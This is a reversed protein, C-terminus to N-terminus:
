FRRKNKPSLNKVLFNGNDDKAYERFGFKVAYDYMEQRENTIYAWMQKYGFDFIAKEVNILFRVGKITKRVDERGFVHEFRPLFMGNSFLVTKFAIVAIIERAEIWTFILDCETDFEEDIGCEEALDIISQMISPALPNKATNEWKVIHPESTM